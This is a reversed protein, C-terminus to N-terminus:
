EVFLPNGLTHSLSDSWIAFDVGPDGIVRADSEVNEIGAAKFLAAAIQTAEWERLRGRHSGLKQVLRDIEDRDVNRPTKVKRVASITSKSRLHEVFQALSIRVVDSELNAARLITASSLEPPVAIDPPVIMLVPRGLGRCVGLEFWLSPAPNGLLALVFSANRIRSTILESLNAGPDFDFADLSEVNMERLMGRISATDLGASATIFAKLTKAM